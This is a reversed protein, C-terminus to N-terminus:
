EINEFILQDGVKFNYKESLGTNIELVYKAKKIPIIPLCNDKGCPNANEFIDAIKHNEDIWVMDLPIFTNKMWFPHIDIDNFIFLMGANEAMKTRYMLGKAQEASTKALEVTFCNENHCVSPLKDNLEKTNQSQITNENTQNTATNQLINSSNQTNCGLILSICFLLTIIM